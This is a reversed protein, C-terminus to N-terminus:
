PFILGRDQYYDGKGDIEELQRSLHSRLAESATQTLKISRGKGNKPFEFVYGTRTESLTRRVRLTGAELDVDDWKLGLLEGERLGCHIALTYLAEFRDWRATALFIRAQEPSLPNIEKKKPRPAKIGDAINRPILGDSVADQLAKRLTTHIYQVTRPSSGSDLKERYLGRVHTPTLGKLKIRGLTPKIHVRVIQEYREWTRQRVTDRINPLWRDLYESLKLSGADFTLGQTRDSLARALKDAVEQRTRGYLTKRKPGESTHVTYRAEWRGDPRKRPRSGEGNGRKKTM